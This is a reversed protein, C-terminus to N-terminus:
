VELVFKSVIPKHAANNRIIALEKIEEFTQLGIKHAVSSALPVLGHGDAGWKNRLTQEITSSLILITEVDSKNLTIKNFVKLSKNKM